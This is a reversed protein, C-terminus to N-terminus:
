EGFLINLMQAVLYRGEGAGRMMEAKMHFPNFGFSHLEEQWRGPLQWGNKLFGIAQIMGGLEELDLRILAGEPVPVSERSVKGKADQELVYVGPDPKNYTGRCIVMQMSVSMPIFMVVTDLGWLPVEPMIGMWADAPVTAREPEQPRLGFTNALADILTM